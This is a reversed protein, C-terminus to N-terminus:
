FPSYVLCDYSQSQSTPARGRRRFSFSGFSAGYFLLVRNWIVGSVGGGDMVDDDEQLNYLLMLSPEASPAGDGGNDDNDDDDNEAVNSAIAIRNEHGGLSSM